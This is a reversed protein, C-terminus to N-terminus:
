WNPNPEFSFSYTTSPIDVALGPYTNWHWTGGVDSGREIICFDDINMRKLQIGIGMGGFGAGIVAYEFDLQGSSKESNDGKHTATIANM